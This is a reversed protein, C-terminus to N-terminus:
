VTVPKEKEKVERYIATILQKDECKTCKDLEKYVYDGRQFERTTKIGCKRCEITTIIQPTEVKLSAIRKRSQFLIYGALGMAIFGIAFFFLSVQITEPSPEPTQYLAGVAAAISIAALIFVAYILIQVFSTGKNPASSRTVNQMKM